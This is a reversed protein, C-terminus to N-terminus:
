GEQIQFVRQLRLLEIVGVVSPQPNLLIVQEVEPMRKKVSLLAGVGSSDIFGVEAFDIAVERISNEWHQNLQEKFDAVSSADFKNDHLKIKIQSGNRWFKFRSNQTRSTKM